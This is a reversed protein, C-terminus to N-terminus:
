QTQQVLGALRYLKPRLHYEGTRPCLPDSSNEARIRFRGLNLVQRIGAVAVEMRESVREDGVQDCAAHVRLEGLLERPM